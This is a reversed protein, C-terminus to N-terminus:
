YNVIDEITKAIREPSHMYHQEGRPLPFITDFGALRTPPAELHLFAKENIVSVIESGVSFSKPAEQVILARGTKKVSEVFTERDMPSITRLDIIEPHIDKDKVMEVAKQVDKVM